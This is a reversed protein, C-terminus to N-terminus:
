EDDEDDDDDEEATTLVKNRDYDIRRRELEFVDLPTLNEIKGDIEAAKGICYVSQPYKKGGKSDYKCVYNLDKLFVNKDSRRKITPKVLAQDIPIPLNYLVLLKNYNEYIDQCEQPTCIELTESVHEYESMNITEKNRLDVWKWFKDKSISTPVFERPNSLNRLLDLKSKTESNTKQVVPKTTAKDDNGKITYEISNKELLKIFDNVYGKKLLWVKSFEYYNHKFSSVPPVSGQSIAKITHYAAHSTGTIGSIIANEEDIDSYQISISASIKNKIPTINHSATTNNVIKDFLDCGEFDSLAELVQDYSVNLRKSLHSALANTNDKFVKDISSVVDERIKNELKVFFGQM